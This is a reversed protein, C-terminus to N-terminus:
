FQCQQFVGELFYIAIARTEARDLVAKLGIQLNFRRIRRPMYLVSAVERCM